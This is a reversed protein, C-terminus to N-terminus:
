RKPSGRKKVKEKNRGLWALGIFLAVGLFLDTTMIDAPASGLFEFCGDPKSRCAIQLTDPRSQKLESSQSSKALVAKATADPKPMTPKVGITTM